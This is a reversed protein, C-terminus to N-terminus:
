VFRDLFNEYRQEYPIDLNSYSNMYYLFLIVFQGCGGSNLKQIPKDSYSYDRGMIDCIAVIDNPAPMGFSDFYFNLGYPEKPIYLATWHTGSGEGADQLNIIICTDVDPLGYEHFAEIIQGSIIDKFGIGFLSIDLINCLRQLDEDTTLSSNIIQSPQFKLHSM